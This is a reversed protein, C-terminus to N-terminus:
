THVILRLDKLYVCSLTVPWLATYVTFILSFQAILKHIAQGM